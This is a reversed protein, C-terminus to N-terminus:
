RGLECKCAVSEELFLPMAGFTSNWGRLLLPMADIRGTAVFISFCDRLMEGHADLLDSIADPNSVELERIVIRVKSQQLNAFLALCQQYFFGKTTAFASALYVSSKTSFLISQLGFCHCLRFQGFLNRTEAASRGLISELEVKRPFAPAAAVAAFLQELRRVRRDPAHSQVAEFRLESFLDRTKV